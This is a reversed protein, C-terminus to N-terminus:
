SALKEVGAALGEGSKWKSGKWRLGIGLGLEWIVRVANSTVRLEVFSGVIKFRPFYLPLCVM